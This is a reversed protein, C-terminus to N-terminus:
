GLHERWNYKKKKVTYSDRRSLSFILCSITFLFLLVISHIQLHCIYTNDAAKENISYALASFLYYLASAVHFKQLPFLDIKWARRNYILTHFFSCDAKCSSIFYLDFYGCFKFDKTHLLFAKNKQYIKPIKTTPCSASDRYTFTLSNNQHAGRWKMRWTCHAAAQM